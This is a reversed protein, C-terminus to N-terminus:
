EDIDGHERLLRMAEPLDDSNVMLRVGGIAEPMPLVSLITSGDLASPIDHEALMGAAISAATPDSFTAALVLPM